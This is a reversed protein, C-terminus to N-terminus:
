GINFGHRCCFTMEKKVILAIYKSAALGKQEAKKRFLEAIDDPVYCHLHAM